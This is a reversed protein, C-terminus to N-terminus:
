WKGFMGSSKHWPKKPNFTDSVVIKGSSDTRGQQFHYGNTIKDYDHCTGCTERPSYPEKSNITLEGGDYGKLVIAEHTKEEKLDTQENAQAARGFCCVALAFVCALLTMKGTM